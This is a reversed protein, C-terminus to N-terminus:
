LRGSVGLTATVGYRQTLRAFDLFHFYNFLPRLEIRLERSSPVDRLTWGAAAGAFVDWFASLEKDLTMYRQPEAYTSRYFSASSQVYGRTIGVLDFAGREYALELGATFAKVGYTDAYLRAHSRLATRAGLVHHYRTVLAVRTRREPVSEAYGFQDVTLYRYPSAQYGDHHTISLAHQLLDRPTASYTGSLTGLYTSLQEEFGFTDVRTIINDQFGLSLALSLDRDLVDRMATLKVNHSQWDNETSYSYDALLASGDDSRYGGGGGFDHRTDDFRTSAQTVVDVSASSVVDALYHAELQWRGDLRLAADTASTVITTHDSDFYLGARTGGALEQAALPAPVVLGALCLL